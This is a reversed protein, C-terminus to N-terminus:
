SVTGMRTLISITRYRGLYRGDIYQDVYSRCEMRDENVQLFHDRSRSAWSGNYGDAFYYNTRDVQAERASWSLISAQTETWGPQQWRAIVRGDQIEQFEVESVLETGVEVSNVGSDIVRTVCQWKGSFNRPFSNPPPAAQPALPARAYALVPKQSQLEAGPVRGGAAADSSAPSTSPVISDQMPTGAGLATQPSAPASGPTAASNTAAAPSGATSSAGDTTGSSSSPLSISNAGQTTDVPAQQMDVSEVHGNLLKAESAPSIALSFSVAILLASLGRSVAKSTATDFLTGHMKM